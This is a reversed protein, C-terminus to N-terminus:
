APCRHAQDLLWGSLRRLAAVSALYAATDEPTRAVRSNYALSEHNRATIALALAAEAIESPSAIEALPRFRPDSM